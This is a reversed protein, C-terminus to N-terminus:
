RLGKCVYDFVDCSLKPCYLNEVPLDMLFTIIENINPNRGAAKPETKINEVAHAREVPLLSKTNFKIYAKKIPMIGFSELERLGLVHIDINFEKTRVEDSLKVGTVPTKFLYDDDVLAFSCLVEGCAPLTEDFGARICHWKPVPPKEIGERGVTSLEAVAADELKIVARGLFDDTSDM